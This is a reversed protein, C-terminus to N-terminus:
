KREALFDGSAESLLSVAMSLNAPCYSSSIGSTRHSNQVRNMKLSPLSPQDVICAM